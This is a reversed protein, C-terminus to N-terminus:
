TVRSVKEIMEILKKIEVPKDICYRKDILDNQKQPEDVRLLATLFILPITDTQPDTKLQSAIDNGNIHPQLVDIIILDPKNIKAVAAAEHGNTCVIVEYDGRAELNKKLFFCFDAEDDIILIKQM